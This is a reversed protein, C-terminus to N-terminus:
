RARYIGRIEETSLGNTITDWVADQGQAAGFNEMPPASRRRVVRADEGSPQPSNRASNAWVTVRERDGQWAGKGYHLM